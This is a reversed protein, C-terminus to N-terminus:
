SREDSRRLQASEPVELALMNMTMLKKTFLVIQAELEDRRKNFARCMEDIIENLTREGNM